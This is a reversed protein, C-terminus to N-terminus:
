GIGVVIEYVEGHDEPCIAGHPVEKSFPADEFSPTRITGDVPYIEDEQPIREGSEISREGLAGDLLYLM